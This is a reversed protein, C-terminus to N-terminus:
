QVFARLAELVSAKHVDACTFTRSPAGVDRWFPQGDTGRCELTFDLTHQFPNHQVVLNFSSMPRPEAAGARYVTIQVGPVVQARLVIVEHPVADAAGLVKSVDVSYQAVPVDADQADWVPLLSKWGFLTQIRTPISDKRLLLNVYELYLGDKTLRIPRSQDYYELLPGLQQLLHQQVFVLARLRSLEDM